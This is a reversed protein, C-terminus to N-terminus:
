VFNNGFESFLWATRIICFDGGANIIEQEGLRKSRGYVGLPNTPDCEKYAVDTKGDFVYDTSIHILKSGSANCLRALHSTAHANVAFAIEPHDEASDVSTYAACNVIFDSSSLNDFFVELSQQNTIDLDNLTLYRIQQKTAQVKQISQGLQGDAGLLYIM